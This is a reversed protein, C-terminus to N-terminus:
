ANATASGATARPMSRPPPALLVVPDDVSVRADRRLMMVTSTQPAQVVGTVRGDADYVEAVLTGATVVDGVRCRTVFTGASPTALAEDTNGHGGYIVQVTAAPAAATQDIIDLAALVRLVGDVYADTEAGRVRAGGLCEAYVAPVGLDAAASLSRGGSIRDHAWVLETGFALAAAAAHEGPAGGLNGYGCFLPMAYNRGGSHLDILLDAPAIVHDTVARALRMTVPGHADGPFVRALNLGDVPSTRTGAAFAPPNAVAVALVRGRLVLEKLRCVLRRVSVVGAYEDGHVGGLVAVTPGSAGDGIEAVELRM